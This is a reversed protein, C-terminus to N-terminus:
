AAVPTVSPREDRKEAAFVAACDSLHQHRAKARPKRSMRLVIWIAVLGFGGGGRGGRGGAGGGGSHRHACTSPAAFRQEAIGM